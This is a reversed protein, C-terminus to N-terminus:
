LYDTYLTALIYERHTPAPCMQQIALIELHNLYLIHPLSTIIFLQEMSLNLPVVSM